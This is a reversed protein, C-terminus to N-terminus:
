FNAGLFIANAERSYEATPVIITDSLNAQPSANFYNAHHIRIEDLHGDFYGSAGSSGIYLSAVFADMDADSLYSVQSGDNYIGYENGVKCLAIHHWNTDAIEGGYPMDVIYSGGSKIQFILGNADGHGFQWFNNTDEIQILYYEFGAHDTHKVQFDIIFNTSIDWDVSDDISFYGSDGDFLAAGTGWKKEATDVEATATVNITHNSDSVDPFDTSGDTGNCHLM